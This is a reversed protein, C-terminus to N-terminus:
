TINSMLSELAIIMGSYKEGSLRNKKIGLKHEVSTIGSGAFLKRPLSIVRPLGEQSHIFGNLTFWMVGSANAQKTFLCIQM